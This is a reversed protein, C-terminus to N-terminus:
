NWNFRYYNGGGSFIFDNIMTAYRASSISIDTYEFIYRQYPEKDGSDGLPEYLVAETVRGNEKTLEVRGTQGSPGTRFRVSTQSIIGDGDYEATYTGNFRRWEKKERENWNAYMGTNVTKVLLGDKTTVSVSDTEEMETLSNDEPNIIHNESLLFTFYDDDNAYQYYIARDDSGDAGTSSYRYVRGNNYEIAISNNEDTYECLTPVGNEFTYKYDIRRTNEGDHEAIDVSSPYDNEYSYEFVINKKWEHSEYDIQYGTVTKVLAPATISKAAPAETSEAAEAASGTEAAGTPKDGGNSSCGSLAAAAVTLILLLCIFSIRKKM